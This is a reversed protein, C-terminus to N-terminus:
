ATSLFKLNTSVGIEYRSRGSPLTELNIQQIYVHNINLLYFELQKLTNFVIPIKNASYLGRKNKLIIAVTNKAIASINPIGGKTSYKLM